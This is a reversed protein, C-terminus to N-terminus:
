PPSGGPLPGEALFGRVVSLVAEDQGWGAERWDPRLAFHIDGKHRSVVGALELDTLVPLMNPCGMDRALGQVPHYNGFPRGM